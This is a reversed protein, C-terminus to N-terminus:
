PQLKVPYEPEGDPYSGKFYLLDTGELMANMITEIKEPTDEGERLIEDVSCYYFFKNGERVKKFVPRGFDDIGWYILESKTVM